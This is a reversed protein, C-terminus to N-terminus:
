GFGVRYPFTVIPPSNIPVPISPIHASPYWGLCRELQDGFSGTYGSYWVMPGPNNWPLKSLLGNAAWNQNNCEVWGM